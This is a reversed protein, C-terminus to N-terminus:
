AADEICPSNRNRAAAAMNRRRRPWYQQLVLTVRHLWDRDKVLDLVEQTAFYKVSNPQPQGLPKLLRGAVLIRIDTPQCNIAWAVQDVTMRGPARSALTLYRLQHDNM